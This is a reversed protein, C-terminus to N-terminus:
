ERKRPSNPVSFRGLLLLYRDSYRMLVNRVLVISGLDFDVSKTCHKDFYTKMRCKTRDGAIVSRDALQAKMNAVWDVLTHDPVNGDLWNDRLVELPGRVDHGYILQFPSYGTETYPTQQYAILVYNLYLDCDRKEQTAKKLMLLLDAHWRELLCEMEPHYASTRIPKIQMVSCIQKMM